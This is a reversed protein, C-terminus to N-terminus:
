DAPTKKETDPLALKARAADQERVLEATRERWFALRQETTLGALLQQIRRAGERKMRVCDFTKTRM